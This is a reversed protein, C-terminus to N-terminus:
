CLCLLDNASAPVTGPGLRLAVLQTQSSRGAKFTGGKEVQLLAAVLKLSSYKPNGKKTNESVIFEDM